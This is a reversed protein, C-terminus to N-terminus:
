QVREKKDLGRMGEIVRGRLNVYVPGFQQLQPMQLIQQVKADYQTLIQRTFMSNGCRLKVFCAVVFITMLHVVVYMMRSFLKFVLLPLYIVLSIVIFIESNAAMMLAYQNFQSTFRNISSNIRQETQLSFPLFGVLNTQFYGLFHFGSYIVFSFLGGTIKGIVYSAIYFWIALLFYQGNEDKLFKSISLNKISTKTKFHIQKIVIVYTGIICILCLRYYKLNSSFIGEITNAIFFALTLFHGIFWYFQQTKLLTTFQQPKNTRTRPRM